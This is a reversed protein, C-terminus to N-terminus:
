WIQFMAEVNPASIVIKKLGVRTAM